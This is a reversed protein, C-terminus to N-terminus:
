GNNIYCGRGGLRPWSVHSFVKTRKTSCVTVYGADLQAIGCLNKSGCAILYICMSSKRFCIYIIYVSLYMM